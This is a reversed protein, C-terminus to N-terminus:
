STADRFWGPLAGARRAEEPFASWAREAEALERKARDLRDMVEVKPEGRLRNRQRGKSYAALAREHESRAAEVRQKLERYRKQWYDRNEDREDAFAPAPLAPGLAIPAALLLHVLVALWARV